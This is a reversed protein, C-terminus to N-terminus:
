KNQTNCFNLWRIIGQHVVSLQEYQAYEASKLKSMFATLQEKWQDTLETIVNLDQSDQLFVPEKNQTSRRRWQREPVHQNKM